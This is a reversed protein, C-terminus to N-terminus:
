ENPLISKITDSKYKRCFHYAAKWAAEHTVEWGANEICWEKGFNAKLCWFFPKSNDIDNNSYLHIEIKYIVNM